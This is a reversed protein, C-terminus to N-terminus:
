GPGQLDLFLPEQGDQELVQGESGAGQRGRVLVSVIEREVTIEIRRHVQRAPGDAQSAEKATSSKRSLIKM